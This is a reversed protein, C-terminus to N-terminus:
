TRDRVAYTHKSADYWAMRHRDTIRFPNPSQAPFRATPEGVAVRKRIGIDVPPRVLGLCYEQIRM